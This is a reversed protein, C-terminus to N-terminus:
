NPIWEQPEEYYPDHLNVQAVCRLGGYRLVGGTLYTTTEDKACFDKLTAEM